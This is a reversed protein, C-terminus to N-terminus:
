LEKPANSSDIPLCFWHWVFPESQAVTTNLFSDFPVIHDSIEHGTGIRYVASDFPELDTDVIAWLYPQCNQYDVKLPRVIHAHVISIPMVDSVPFKYIVNM